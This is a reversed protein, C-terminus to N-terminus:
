FLFPTGLAPSVLTRWARRRGCGRFFYCLAARGNYLRCVSLLSRSHVQAGGSFRLGSQTLLHSYTDGCALGTAGAEEVRRVGVSFLGLHSHRCSVTETWAEPGQAGSDPPQHTPGVPGVGRMMRGSSLFTLYPLYTDEPARSAEQSM